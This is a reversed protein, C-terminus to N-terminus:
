WVPTQRKFHPGRSALELLGKGIESLRQDPEMLRRLEKELAPDLKWETLRRLEKGVEPDSNWETDSPLEKFFATFKECPGAVPQLENVTATAVKQKKRKGAKMPM